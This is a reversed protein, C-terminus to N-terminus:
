ATQAKHVALPCDYRALLRSTSADHSQSLCMPRRRHGRRPALMPSLLLIHPYKDTLPLYKTPLPFPFIIDLFLPINIPNAELRRPTGDDLRIVQQLM